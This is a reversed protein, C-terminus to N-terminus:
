LNKKYCVLLLVPSLKIDLEINLGLNIYNYAPKERRIMSQASKDSIVTALRRGSYGMGDSILRDEM